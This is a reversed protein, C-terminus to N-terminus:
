DIPTPGYKCIHHVCSRVWLELAARALAGCRAQAPSPWLTVPGQPSGRLTTNWLARSSDPTPSSLGLRVWAQASGYETLTVLRLAADFCQYDFASCPLAVILHRLRASGCLLSSKAIHIFNHYPLLITLCQLQLFACGKSQVIPRCVLHALFCFGCWDCACAPLVLGFLLLTTLM